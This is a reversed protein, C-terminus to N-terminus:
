DSMAQCIQDGAQHHSGFSRFCKLSIQDLTTGISSKPWLGHGGGWAVLNLMCVFRLLTLLVLGPFGM